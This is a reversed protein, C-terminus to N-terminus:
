PDTEERSYPEGIDMTINLVGAQELVASRVREGTAPCTAWAPNDPDTMWVQVPSSRGGELRQLRGRLDSM